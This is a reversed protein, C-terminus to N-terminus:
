SVTSITSKSLSPIDIEQLNRNNLLYKRSCGRQTSIPQDCLTLGQLFDTCWIDPDAPYVLYVLRIKLASFQGFKLLLNECFILFYRSSIGPYLGPILLCYDCLVISLFRQFCCYKSWIGGGSILYIITFMCILYTISILICILNIIYLPRKFVAPIM